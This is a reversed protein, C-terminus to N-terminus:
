IKEVWWGSPLAVFRRHFEEVGPLPLAKPGFISYFTNPIHVGSAAFGENRWEKLAAAKDDALTGFVWYSPDIQQTDLLECRGALKARWAEANARQRAFLEPLDQMQCYGIYSSMENMTVGYGKIDVDSAPNIEGMADRFTRRNVGLDRVRVAREYLARDKFVVGGGDVTNPLRVTQFSFLTIDTGLNGITRGKYKSGFSEIADDAVLIGHRRGIENIEDVYGPYSCHHNHMILKTRPTIAQEVSDPCLTGRKPDVDAWVVKAGYSAIPATSAMCCQPSAIVEDQDTLGITSLMVQVAATFSNVVLVEEQCGVFRRIAEEFERGWKGYALAGSHLIANLEPLEDPMYPKYLAVM